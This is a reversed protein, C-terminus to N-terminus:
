NFKKRLVVLGGFLILSSSMLIVNTSNDNKEEIGTYPIDPTPKEEPKIVPEEIDGTGHIFEYIYTIHIDELTMTGEELGDVKNLIYGTIDKANTKYEDDIFGELIVDDSIKNGDQEVYHAIVKSMITHAAKIAVSSNKDYENFLYAKIEEQNDTHVLWRLDESDNYWGDIKHNCKTLKLGSINDNLNITIGNKGTGTSYIDDGAVSANNDYIKGLVDLVLGEASNFSDAYVGAGKKANNNTVVVDSGIKVEKLYTDAKINITGNNVATNNKITGANIILSNQKETSYIASGDNSSYNNSITGANVVLKSNSGSVWLAGGNKAKNSSLITEENIELNAAKSGSSIAIGGGNGLTATNNDILTNYITVISEKNGAANIYIAGGSGRTTSNNILKSNNIKVNGASILLAGGNSSVMNGDFTVSDIILNDNNSVNIAGGMTANGNKITGNKITIVGKLNNVSIISKNSNSSLEFGGLDLTIPKNININENVNSLLEITDNDKATNIAETLTVYNINNIKAVYSDAYVNFGFLGLLSFVIIRRLLKRM